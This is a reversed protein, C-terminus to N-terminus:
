LTHTGASGSALAVSYRRSSWLSRVPVSHGIGVTAVCRAPRFRGQLLGIKSVRFPVSVYHCSGPDIGATLIGDFFDHSGDALLADSFIRCSYPRKEALGAVRVPVPNPPLLRM